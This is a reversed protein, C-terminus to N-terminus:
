KNDSDSSNDSSSKENTQQCSIYRHLESERIRWARGVRFAQLQNENKAEMYRFVSRESVQLIKAVEAVTYLKEIAM